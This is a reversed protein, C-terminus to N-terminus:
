RTFDLWKLTLLFSYKKYWSYTKRILKYDKINFSFLIIKKSNKFYKGLEWSKLLSTIIVLICALVYKKWNEKYSLVIHNKKLSKTMHMFVFSKKTKYNKCRKSSFWIRIKVTYFYLGINILIFLFIHSFIRFKKSLIKKFKKTIPQVRDLFFNPRSQGLIFGLWFRGL